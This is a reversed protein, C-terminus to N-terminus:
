RESEMFTILDKWNDIRTWNPEIYNYNHPRGFLIGNGTFIGVNEPKDDLLYDALILSKDTAEVYDKSHREKPLFCDEQLRMLKRGNQAINTSTVFVVRFGMIRLNSVGWLADPIPKVLKYLNLDDLYDYIKKGCEPKVFKDINWDTIDQPMLHDNWDQNYLKLWTGILDFVVDDVDVAFIGCNYKRRHIM